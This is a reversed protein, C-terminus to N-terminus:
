RRSAVTFIRPIYRANPFARPWNICPNIRDTECEEFLAQLTSEPEGARAAREILESLRVLALKIIALEKSCKSRPVICEPNCTEIVTRSAAVAQRLDAALEDHSLDHGLAHNIARLGKASIGSAPREIRELLSTAFQFCVEAAAWQNKTIHPNFRHSQEGNKVLELSGPLANEILTAIRQNRVLTERIQEEAASALRLNMQAESDGPAILCAAQVRKRHEVAKELEPEISQLNENLLRILDDMAQEDLELYRIEDTMM